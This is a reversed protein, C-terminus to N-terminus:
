ELPIHFDNQLADRIGVQETCDKMWHTISETIYERERGRGRGREYEKSYARERM